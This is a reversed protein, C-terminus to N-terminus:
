GPSLFFVLDMEDVSSRRGLCLLQPDLTHYASVHPFPNGILRSVPIGCLVRILKNSILMGMIMMIGTM